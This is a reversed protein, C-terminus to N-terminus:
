EEEKRSLKLELRMPSLLKNINKLTPNGQGRELNTVTMKSVNVKKAYEEQTLGYIKRILKVAQRLDLQGLELKEYLEEKAQKREQLEKASIKKSTM